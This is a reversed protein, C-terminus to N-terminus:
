PDLCGKAIRDAEAREVEGPALAHSTLIGDIRARSGLSKQRAVDAASSLTASQAEACGDGGFLCGAAADEADSVEKELAACVGVESALEEQLRRRRAESVPQREAKKRARELESRYAQMSRPIWSALSFATPTARAGLAATGDDKMDALPSDMARGVFMAFDESGRIRDAARAKVKGWAKFAPELTADLRAMAKQYEEQRSIVWVHPALAAVLMRVSREGQNARAEEAATAIEKGFDGLTALARADDEGHVKLFSFLRQFEADSAHPVSVTRVRRAKDLHAFIVEGPACGQRATLYGNLDKVRVGCVWAVVGRDDNLALPFAGDPLEKLMPEVAMPEVSKGGGVLVDAIQFALLLPAGQEGVCHSQWAAATEAGAQCAAETDCGYAEAIQKAMTDCSRPDLEIHTEEKFRREMTRTMMLVMLPTAYREGCRSVWKQAKAACVEAQDCDANQLLERGERVCANDPMDVRQSASDVLEQVADVREGAIKGCRRLWEKGLDRAHTCLDGTCASEKALSTAVKECEAKKGRAPKGEGAVFLWEATQNTEDDEVSVHPIDGAPKPPPGGCHAVALLSAAAAIRGIRPCNRSLLM